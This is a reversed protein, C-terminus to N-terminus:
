MAAAVGEEEALPAPEAEPAPAVEAAEIEVAPEPAVEAVAKVVAPPPPPPPAFKKEFSSLTQGSEYLYSLDEDVQAEKQMILTYGLGFAAALGMATVGFVLATNEDGGQLYVQPEVAFINSQGASDKETFGLSQRMDRETVPPGGDKLNARSVM